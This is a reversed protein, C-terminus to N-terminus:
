YNIVFLFPIMNRDIYINQVQTSVKNSLRLHVHHWLGDNLPTTSNVTLPLVEGNPKEVIVQLRGSKLQIAFASQFYEKSAVRLYDTYTKHNKMELLRNQSRNKITRRRSLSGSYLLIGTDHQTLFKFSIVTPMCPPLPSLWAWGEGSFSRTSIKCHPGVTEEPCVCRSFSIM